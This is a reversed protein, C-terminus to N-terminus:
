SSGKLEAVVAKAEKRVDYMVQTDMESWMELSPLKGPREHPPGKQERARHQVQTVRPYRLDEFAQLREQLTGSGDFLFIPLVAADEISQAAGQGQHPLMAHAADGIVVAKGKHWGKVPERDRIQWLAPEDDVRKRCKMLLQLKEPFMSFAEVLDETKGMAKWSEVADNAEMFVPAFLNLLTNDRCPYLLARRGDQGTWNEMKVQDVFDKLIPDKKLEEVYWLCRFASHGSYVSKEEERGTVIKRVVSRVGDAGVVLDAVYEGGDKTKVSGAEPHVEVVEKAILVKVGAAEALRVLEAHMDARHVWWWPAGAKKCVAPLDTYDVLEGQEHYEYQPGADTVRAKKPDFNISQLIRTSNPALSVAAGVEGLQHAKELVTISVGAGRQALTLAATLGAIGAGVIIIHDLKPSSM